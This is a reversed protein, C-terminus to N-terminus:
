PDYYAELIQELKGTKKVREETILFEPPLEEGGREEQGLVMMALARGCAWAHVMGEGSFGASVWEGGGEPIIKRPTLKKSLKGVWPVADASMGMIGAWTKKVRGPEVESPSTHDAHGNQQDRHLPTSEAGWNSAGFYVPLAGSLYSAVSPDVRSEDLNGM